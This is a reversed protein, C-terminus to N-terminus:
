KVPRYIWGTRTGDIKVWLKTFKGEEAYKDLRRKAAPYTLGWAACAEPITIDGEQQVEPRLEDLIAQKTNGNIKM